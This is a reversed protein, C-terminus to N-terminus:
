QFLSSPDEGVVINQGDIEAVEVDRRVLDAKATQKKGDM